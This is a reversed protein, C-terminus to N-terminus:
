VFKTFKVGVYANNLKGTPSYLFVSDGDSLDFKHPNPIRTIDTSDGALNVTAFKNGNSDTEIAKVIAPFTILINLKKMLSMVFTNVANRILSMDQQNMDM